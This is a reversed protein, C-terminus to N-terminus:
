REIRKQVVRGCHLKMRGDVKFLNELRRLRGLDKIKWYHRRRSWVVVAVCARRAGEGGRARRRAGTIYPCVADGTDGGHSQLSARRACACPGLPLYIM